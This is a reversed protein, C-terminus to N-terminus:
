VSKRDHMNYDSINETDADLDDLLGEPLIARAETGNIGMHPQFNGAFVRNGKTVFYGADFTVPAEGTIRTELYVYLLYKDIMDVVSVALYKMEDFPLNFEEGVKNTRNFMLADLVNGIAPLIYTPVLDSSSTASSVQFLLNDMINELKFIAQRFVVDKQPFEEKYM